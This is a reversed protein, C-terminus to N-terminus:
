ITWALTSLAWEKVDGLTSTNRLDAETVPTANKLGVAFRDELAVATADDRIAVVAETDRGDSRGNLNCSGVISYVGDFSATKAHLTGQQQEFIKVGASLLEDYFYRAADCVFGMDSSAKSNTLVKVEVGRKAAEVFAKRLPEPPVFYANEVTISKTAAGIAQLHLQLTHDDPPDGHPHHQVVRVAAGGPTQAPKPFLGAMDKKPMPEGLLNWNRVFARQVDHVAPGEVRVDVDRWAHESKGADRIVMRGSGGLAYEDAINMGGEVAVKGDVVLHKEHWRNNISLLDLGTEHARVDVAAARLTDFMKVDSRNSGLGDFIVRVTVGRKEAACLRRTLDQGTDDDNFIFTQLHISSAAGDILTNREAFSQQGDFLPRVTNDPQAKSGTTKDLAREFAPHALGSALAARGLRLDFATRGSGVASSATPATQLGEKGAPPQQVQDTAPTFTLPKSTPTFTTMTQTPTTTPTTVPLTVRSAGRADTGPVPTQIGPRKGVLDM